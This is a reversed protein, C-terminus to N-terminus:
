DLNGIFNVRLFGRERGREFAQWARLCRKYITSQFEYFGTNKKKESRERERYINRSEVWVM